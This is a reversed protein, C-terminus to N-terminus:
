ISVEIRFYLAELACCDIGDIALGMEGYYHKKEDERSRPMWASGCTHLVWWKALLADVKQNPEL